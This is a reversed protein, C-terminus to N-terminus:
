GVKVSYFTTVLSITEAQFGEDATSLNAPDNWMGSWLTMTNNLQQYGAIVIEQLAISITKVRFKYRRAM